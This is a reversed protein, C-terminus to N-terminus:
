SAPLASSAPSASSASSASSSSSPFSLIYTLWNILAEDFKITAFGFKNNNVYNNPM